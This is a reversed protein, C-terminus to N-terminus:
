GAEPEFGSCRLVPLSPYKSFRPDGDALQCRYFTSGRRNSTRAAHQCRACLGVGAPGENTDPKAESGSDPIFDSM